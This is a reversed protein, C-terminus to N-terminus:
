SYNQVYFTVLTNWMVDQKVYRGHSGVDYVTNNDETETAKFKGTLFSQWLSALENQDLIAHVEGRDSKTKTPAKSVYTKATGSVRRVAEFIAETDVYECITLNM